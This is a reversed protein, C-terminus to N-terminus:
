PYFFDKKGKFYTSSLTSTGLPLNSELTAQSFAYAFVLFTMLIQRERKAKNTRTDMENEPAKNVRHCIAQGLGLAAKETTGVFSSHVVRMLQSQDPDKRLM